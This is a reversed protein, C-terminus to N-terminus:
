YPLHIIQEGALFVPLTDSLAILIHLLCKSVNRSRSLESLQRFWSQPWHLRMGSEFQGHGAHGHHTRQYPERWTAAPSVKVVASNCAAAASASPM